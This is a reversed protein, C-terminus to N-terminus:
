RIGRVILKAKAELVSLVVASEPARTDLFVCGRALEAVRSSLAGAGQGYPVFRYDAVELAKRVDAHAEEVISAASRFEVHLPICDVFLHLPEEETEARVEVVEAATADVEKKAGALRSLLESHLEVVNERAKDFEAKAEAPTVNKRPRGRKKAVPMEPDTPKEEPFDKKEEADKAAPAESAEAAETAADAAVKKEAEIPPAEITSEPPNVRVESPLEKPAKAETADTNQARERLSALLSGNSMLSQMREKPTLNCLHQYPCGGYAECTSPVPALELARKGSKKIARMEHAVEELVPFARESDERTWVIETAESARGGKTRLYVWKLRVAEARSELLAEEGYVIAQPDWRLVDETKLWRFSSTTKHDIVTALGNWEPVWLDIRGVFTFPGRAFKLEREVKMGPHGPEPYHQLGSAAIEAAVNPSGDENTFEYSLGAFYREQQKHVLDGLKAGEGQPGEVKEISKWAWKRPCALYTEVQSPSVYM